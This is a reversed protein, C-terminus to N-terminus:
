KPQEEEDDEDEDEMPLMIEEGFYDNPWLNIFGLVIGFFVVIQFLNLSMLMVKYLPDYDCPWLMITRQIATAGLLASSVTTLFWSLIFGLGMSNRGILWFLMGFIFGIVGIMTTTRCIDM